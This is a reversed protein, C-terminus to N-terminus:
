KLDYFTYSLTVRDLYAPLAPDVYFRVPMERAEGTQFKQPTFCFCETKHFWASAKSPAFSPIAQAVIDHGTLNHAKFKAEYLEGPHVQMSPQEPEFEWNGVTPLITMFEVTVLRKSDVILPTAAAATTLNKQTGIGTVECLVDYLPILAWGFAFSGAVFASLQWLLARNLRKRHATENM